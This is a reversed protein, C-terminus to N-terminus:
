KVELLKRDTSLIHKAVSPTFIVSIMALIVFISFLDEGILGIEFGIEVAAIILSMRAAHLLGLSISERINFGTLKSILGVGITKSLIGTAIIIMLVEITKINSFIAPLNIRAGVLIFFLPIFFGYGFSELKKELLSREHPTLESIILGAIFAGIISHFGLVGSFAVLAIILAFSVRVGQEFHAEDCLWKDVRTQIGGKKIVKPILFLIIILTSSYLFSLTFAGQIFTVSFALLFISLIDVLVVSSLLTHAFAKKHGVEKTFPLIIGISTTSFVTGLFLPHVGIYPSIMAGAAFPVLISFAAIKLTKSVYGEIKEFDVDMGALFMLYILGFSKFFDIIPDSSIIDLFSNGFITGMIIEVVILPLRIKKSIAPAIM